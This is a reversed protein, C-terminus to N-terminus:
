QEMKLRPDISFCKEEIGERRINFNLNYINVFKGPEKINKVKARVIHEDSSCIAIANFFNEELADDLENKKYHAYVISEITVEFDGESDKREAEWRVQQGPEVLSEFDEIRNHDHTEASNTDFLQCYANFDQSTPHKMSYLKEADVKLTIVLETGRPHPQGEIKKGVEIPLM